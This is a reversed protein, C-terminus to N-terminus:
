GMSRAIAQAHQTRLLRAVGQKTWPSKKMPTPVPLANMALAIQMHSLGKRRMEIVNIVVEPKCVPPRGSKPRDAASEPATM